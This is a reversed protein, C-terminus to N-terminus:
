IIEKREDGDPQEKVDARKKKQFLSIKKKKLFCVVPVIVVAFPVLRIAAFLVAEMVSLFGTWSGKVTNKLRDFFTGYKDPTVVASYEVVEQVQIFVTAYSVQKDMYDRDTKRSNLETQVLTLREEILIMDEITEAKNMMELLRAEQIELAKLEAENDNYVRSINEAETSRRVVHGCDAVSTLFREFSEAPIRLTWDMMRGGTNGTTQRLSHNYAIETEVIGSIETLLTRIKEATDDYNMTEMDIDARYAIKQDVSEPAVAFDNGAYEEKPYAADLSKQEDSVTRVSCACFFCVCTVLLAKFRRM